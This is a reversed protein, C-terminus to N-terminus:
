GPLPSSSCFPSAGPSPRCSPAPSSLWPRNYQPLHSGRREFHSGRLESALPPRFTLLSQEPFHRPAGRANDTCGNMRQPTFHAINGISVIRSGERWTGGAGWGEGVGGM